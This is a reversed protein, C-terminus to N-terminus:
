DALISLYVSILSGYYRLLHEPLDINPIVIVWITGRLAFFEGVLKGRKVFHM